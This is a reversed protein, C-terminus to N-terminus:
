IIILLIWFISNESDCCYGIASSYIEKHEGFSSFDGRSEGRYISKEVSFVKVIVGNGVGGDVSVEPMLCILKRVGLDSIM